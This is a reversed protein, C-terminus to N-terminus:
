DEAEDDWEGRIGKLFGRERLFSIGESTQPNYYVNSVFTPFEERFEPVKSLLFWLVEEIEGEHPTSYTRFDPDYHSAIALSLSYQLLGIKDGSFLKPARNYFEKVIPPYRYIKPDEFIRVFDKQTLDRGPLILKIALTMRRESQLSLTSYYYFQLGEAVESSEPYIELLKEISGDSDEVELLAWLQKNLFERSPSDLKRLLSEFAEGRFYYIGKELLLTAPLNFNELCLNVLKPDRTTGQIKEADESQLLIKGLDGLSIKLHDVLAHIIEISKLYSLRLIAPDHLGYPYLKSFYRFEQHNNAFLLAGFVTETNWANVRYGLKHYRDLLPRFYPSGTVHAAGEILTQYHDIPIELGIFYDLVDQRPNSLVGQYYHAILINREVEDGPGQTCFNYWVYACEFSRADDITFPGKYEPSSGFIKERYYKFIKVTVAGFDQSLFEKLSLNENYLTTYDRASDYPFDFSLERHFKLYRIYNLSEKSFLFKRLSPEWSSYSLVNLFVKSM